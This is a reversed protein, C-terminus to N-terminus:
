INISDFFSTKKDKLYEIAKKLIEIDDNAMSFM